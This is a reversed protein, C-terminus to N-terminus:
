VRIECLLALLAWVRPGHTLWVVAAYAAAGGLVQTALHLAATWSEPAGLRLSLVVAAMALTARAAPWLVRLYAGVPMDIAQLAHRMFMPIAILPYGILWAVAVGATGWRSGILFLSPLVIAALVSFYMSRKEHGTAVLIQPSLTVISRIGGYLALLRLPLIAPRWAEGLVVLVFEDAVLALGVSAPFTVLALGETLLGLYRRLAPPDNRVAAFVAPTVRGVLASVRDVPVTAVQWGLSYAGLAAKGLTRGGIAFDANSYVYWAIQSVVIHWGFRVPGAIPGFEGPWQIRHPRWLIVVTGAVLAALIAGGVLAWYRFGLVALALTGITLTLAEIGEVWALKRFEMERMLLARPVVQLARMVFTLSLAIIIWRVAAEGFFAALPGALAASAACLLVGWLVSLGGLRAIQQEQLDRQQVIASGLGFESLIQVFGLYVMAMGVLGYDTPTLLRAVFITVAWSVLQTLWKMGGTWAIGQVLSRDLARSERGRTEASVRAPIAIETM